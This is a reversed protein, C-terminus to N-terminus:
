LSSSVADTLNYSKLKNTYFARNRPRKEKKPTPPKKCMNVASKM